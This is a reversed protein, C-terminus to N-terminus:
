TYKEPLRRVLINLMILEFKFILIDVENALPLAGIYNCIEIRILSVNRNVSVLM